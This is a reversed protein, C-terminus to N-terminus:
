LYAKGDEEDDDDAVADDDDDDDTYVNVAASTSMILATRWVSFDSVASTLRINFCCCSPSSLAASFSFSSSSSPPSPSSSSVPIQMSALARNCDNHETANFADVM